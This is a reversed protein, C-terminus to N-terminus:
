LYKEMFVVGPLPNHHYPATERFGMSRYLARAEAMAPLTDLCIRRYGIARADAVIKEALQRGLGTGRFQRRVYLRKMECTAPNLKRLGVCGRIETSERALLLRGEPPAYIGPLNGLEDDFGQFCLSFGLSEAYELFLARVAELKAGPTTVQVIESLGM